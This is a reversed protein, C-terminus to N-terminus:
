LMIRRMSALTFIWAPPCWSHSTTVSQTGHELTELAQGVITMWSPVTTGSSDSRACTILRSSRSYLFRVLGYYSLGTDRAVRDVGLTRLKPLASTSLLSTDEDPFISALFDPSPYKLQLNELTSAVCALCRKWDCSYTTGQVSLSVLPPSSRILFGELEAYDDEFSIDLHQLAPLTLYQLLEPAGVTVALSSLRTHTIETFSSRPTFNLSCVAEMLNAAQAFLQFDQVLGDYKTLQLWPVSLRISSFIINTHDLRFEHLHPANDFINVLQTHTREWAFFAFNLSVSELLPLELSGLGLLPLLRQNTYLELHRIRHSYRQIVNALLTSDRLGQDHFVLSLPCDGARTLWRDIFADVSRPNSIVQDPISDFIITLISWLAPTALAIDRWTRCVSTLVMPAEHKYENIARSWGLNAFPPLCHVFIKATIEFPLRLVPFPIAYLEREVTTREEELAYLARRHETIQADLEELRRRFDIAAM